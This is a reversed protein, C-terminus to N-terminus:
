LRLKEIPKLFVKRLERPKYFFKEESQSLRGEKDKIKLLEMMCLFDASQLLRYKKQEARTFEINEFYASFIASLLVSLEHQGNDYYLKIKDYGNFFSQNNQIMERIGRSISKALDQATKANKRNVVVTSYKIPCRSTFALISYILRRREDLSYNEFISEKRIIPATHIYELNCNWSKLSNELVEVKGAISENQDHFVFTIIYNNKPNDTEGFDGSEDIFVSLEKM